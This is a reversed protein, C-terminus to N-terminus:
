ACNIYCDLDLGVLKEPAINDMALLWAKKDKEELKKKINLALHMQIQGPKTSILIGIKKADKAKAIAAFKQRLFNDIDLKKLENKELDLVFIPKNIKLALGVPHFVGSGIFLFCDVKDAIELGASIECGLIQGPAFKGKGIFCKKGKNELFEKVEEIHHLYNITSILGLKKYNELLKLSKELVKLHKGNLKWEYYLVPVKTELGFDSHGIHFLLDCGLRAAECDRLDCAGYCPELSVIAEIGNKELFEALEQAKTILGEPLQILIRKPNRELIKKVLDELM